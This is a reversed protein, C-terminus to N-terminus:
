FTYKIGLGPALDFFPGTALEVRPNLDLSIAIPSDPILYELGLVGDAGLLIKNDDYYEDGGGIRKYHGKGTSGIHAGFGYYFKFNATNFAPQHIEYLGTVVVGHNRFGLIGELAVSENNFHKFSIGNEYGGFKLGAANRYDQAKSASAMFLFGFALAFFLLSKKMRAFIYKTLSIFPM